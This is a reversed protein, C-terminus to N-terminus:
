LEFNVQFEQTMCDNGSQPNLDSCLSSQSDRIMAGESLFSMEQFCWLTSVYMDDRCAGSKKSMTLKKLEKNYQGRLTHMKKKLNEITVTPDKEHLKELIQSYATEKKFRNKYQDSKM